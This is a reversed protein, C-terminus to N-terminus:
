GPVEVREAVRDREADVNAFALLMADANDPSRGLRAKTEEKPLCVRRGRGDFRYLQSPLERRLARQAEVPLLAFSVNGRQAEEALECWLSSRLNPYLDEQIGETRSGNVLYVQWGDRWLEEAPGNAYGGGADMAIVVQRGDLGVKAGWECALVKIRAALQLGTWGNMSEHHVSSGGIKVHICSDDDGFRAVDVGLQLPGSVPLQRAACADVMAVSWVSDVAQTPRRGLAGAEFRPGPRHWKGSGPRWEVDTVKRDDGTLPTCWDQIWQEVKALRVAQPFPPSGGLLEARINPHDLSSMPLMRWSPKGNADVAAEEQAVHSTSSYPNYACIIGHGEGSAMTKAAEFYDRDVGEAEDIVVLVNKEHQGQFGAQTNATVGKAFHKPGTELRLSKPGAFGGLGRRNRQARIEKWLLDRVQDLKPATTLCVSPKRTDFWWSVMVALAFTNHEWLESLYTHHEPVEIAVTMADSMQEISSVREWRTGAPATRYRWDENKEPRSHRARVAEVGGEKGYIGIREVFRLCDLRARFEVCYANVNKRYRLWGHVGFRLLLHQVDRALRESVTCYGVEALGNKAVCAWGDTAFLRNLFLAQQRVTTAFVVAPVFKDRSHRNMLGCARVLARVPNDPYTLYGGHRNNAGRKRPRGPAAAVNYVIPNSKARNLVSGMRACCEHMEQLQRNEQQTFTLTGGTMGGDGILYALVKIEDDSLLDNEGGAPLGDAVAVLDGVKLERVAAWRSNKIKTKVANGMRADATWLPHQGNRVIQLGTETTLRFVPERRNVSAVAPVAVPKGEVLTFLPFTKGILEGARVREGSALTIFDGEWACKGTDHGSPVLVRYPPELVARMIEEQRPTLEVRLVERAYGAPDDRYVTCDLRQGTGKKLALLRKELRNLYASM